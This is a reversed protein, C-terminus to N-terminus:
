LVLAVLREFPGEPFRTGLLVIFFLWGSLAGGLGFLIARGAPRLGNVWAGGAMLLFTGLTFGLYPVLFPYACTMLVFVIRGARGSIPGLIPSMDFVWGERFAQVATRAFFLLSFGLVMAAMFLGSRQAEPPFSWVSSVYYIAYFSAGVPLILDAGFRKTTGKTQESM